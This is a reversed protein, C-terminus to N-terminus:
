GLVRVDEGGEKGQQLEKHQIRSTTAPSLLVLSWPCSWRKRVRNTDWLVQMGEATHGGGKTIYRAAADATASVFRGTSPRPTDTESATWVPNDNHTTQM